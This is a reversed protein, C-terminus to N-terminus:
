PKKPGAAGRRVVGDASSDVTADWAALDDKPHVNVGGGNVTPGYAATTHERSRTDGAYLRRRTLNAAFEDRGRALGKLHEYPVAQQGPGGGILNRYGKSAPVFGNADSVAAAAPHRSFFSKVGLNEDQGTQPHVVTTGRIDKAMLAGSWRRPLMDRSEREYINRTFPNLNTDPSPLLGDLWKPFDAAAKQTQKEKKKGPKTKAKAAQEVEQKRLEALRMKVADLGGLSRLQSIAQLHQKDFDERKSKAYMRGLGAGGITGGIGGLIGGGLGGLRGGLRMALRESERDGGALASGALMGAGVGGVAGLVTGAAGGLYTGFAPYKTEQYNRMNDLYARIDASDDAAVGEQYAQRGKRWANFEALLQPKIANRIDRGVRGFMGERQLDVAHGLEHIAAGPSNNNVIATNADPLYATPLQEWYSDPLMSIQQATLDRTGMVNSISSDRDSNAYIQNLIRHTGVNGSMIAANHLQEPRAASMYQAISRMNDFQKADPPSINEPGFVLKDVWSNVPKSRRDEYVSTAAQKTAAKKAISAGIAFLTCMDSGVNYLRKYSQQSLKTLDPRVATRNILLWGKDKWAKPKLLVFREPQEKDNTTFEIKDPSASTVLINGRRGTAVTGKGYGSPIEGQFGAYEHTHVPQQFLARRAGPEPLEHKTAWSYLGTEPTGFRIDYHPGAKDAKHHQIVFDVLGPKLKTLDGVDSRNPIGLATAASKGIALLTRM